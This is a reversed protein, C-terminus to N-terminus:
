GYRARTQKIFQDLLLQSIVSLEQTEQGFELTGIFSPGDLDPNNGPVTEQYPMESM